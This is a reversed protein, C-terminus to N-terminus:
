RQRFASLASHIPRACILAPAAWWFGIAGPVAILIGFAAATGVSRHMPLSLFSLVPVAITGGGIGMLASALGIASSILRGTSGRGAPILPHSRDATSTTSSTPPKQRAQGRIMTVAVYLAILGFLLQLYRSDLYGSLGGGLAAGALIFPGWERLIVFDVAGRRHHSRRVVAIDPHNDDIVNGGGYAHHFRCTGEYLQVPHILVPVIVIGGGVGLLGALLGAFIGTLLLAAVM